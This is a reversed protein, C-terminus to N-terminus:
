SMKLSILLEIGESGDADPEMLELAAAILGARSDYQLCSARRFVEEILARNCSQALWALANATFVAGHALLMECVEFDLGDYVAAELVTTTQDYNEPDAGQELLLRMCPIDRNDLAQGLPTLGEIYGQGSWDPCLDFLRRISALDKHCVMVLLLDYIQQDYYQKRIEPDTAELDAFFAPITGKYDTYFDNAKGTYSIFPWDISWGVWWDQLLDM